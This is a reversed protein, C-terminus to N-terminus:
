TMNEKQLDIKHLVTILTIYVSLRQSMAIIPALVYTSCLHFEFSHIVSKNKVYRRRQIPEEKKEIVLKRKRPQPSQVFTCDQNHFQCLVCVVQGEHVVCKSKRRRCADCPRTKRGPASKPASGSASSKAKVSEREDFDPKRFSAPKSAIPIPATRPVAIPTSM